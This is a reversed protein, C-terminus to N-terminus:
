AEDIDREEVVSPGHGCATPLRLISQDLLGAFRVDLGRGDPGQRKQFTRVARGFLWRSPEGECALTERPVDTPLVAM